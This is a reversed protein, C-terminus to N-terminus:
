PRRVDRGREVRKVLRRAKALRALLPNETAFLSLLYRIEQALDENLQHLHICRERLVEQDVTVKIELDVHSKAM